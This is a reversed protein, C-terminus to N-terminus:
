IKEVLLPTRLLVCLLAPVEHQLHFQPIPLLHDLLLLLLLLMMMLLKVVDQHTTGDDFM